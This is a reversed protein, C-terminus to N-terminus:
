ADKLVQQFLFTVNKSSKATKDDNANLHIEKQRKKSESGEKSDKKHKTNAENLSAPKQKSNAEGSKNWDTSTLMESPSSDRKESKLKTSGTAKRTPELKGRKSDNAGEQAALSGHAKSMM